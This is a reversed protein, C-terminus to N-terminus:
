KLLRNVTRTDDLTKAKNTSQECMISSIIDIELETLNDISFGVLLNESNIIFEVRENIISENVSLEDTFKCVFTKGALSVSYDGDIDVFDHFKTFISSDVIINGTSVDKRNFQFRGFCDADVFLTIQKITGTANNIGVELPPNVGNGLIRWYSYFDRNDNVDNNVSLFFYDSAMPEFKIHTNTTNNVVGIRSLLM